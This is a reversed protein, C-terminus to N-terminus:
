ITTSFAKQLLADFLGNIEETSEKQWRKMIEVKHVIAAFRNQLEVPPVPIEFNEFDQKVIHQMTSGHVKSKLAELTLSAAYHFYKKNLLEPRLFEIRFIHQNLAADGGGWEHVGLSASWAILIDGSKVLYKKELPGDFFNFKQQTGTLNQIRIIPIGKRSWEAPKFARGNVGRILEKFKRIAWNHENKAPDGFMELFVAQLYKGTESNAQQRLEKLREARDLISITRRQEPIPPLPIEIKGVADKNIAQFTSGAGKSAIEKEMSRLVHFLYKSLVKVSPRIACIGRGIACKRDAINVPGVPARVSMLIDDKEAFKKPESCWIRVIPYKSTFDTKGQFFPWGKGESNYTSSPPSQGMVIECIESLIVTKM